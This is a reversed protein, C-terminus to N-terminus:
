APHGSRGIIEEGRYGQAYLPATLDGYEIRMGAAAALIPKAHYAIGLGAVLVMALDNAGDGIALTERPSIGREQTLTLLFAQKAHRDLIPKIVRGTLKGDVIELRNAQHIDFGVREAVHGSYVTFGGSVLACYAGNARMTAVLARAGPNVRINERMRDLVEADMGALMGVREALADAFDVEGQMARATIAAIREGLGLEGALEDLMENDIITSEMDAVLLLKRRGAAPQAVVDVPRVDLAMRVAADAERPAPGEFPIDCALGPDLWDEAAIAAGATTLAERAAAVTSNDLAGPSGAILTLVNEM